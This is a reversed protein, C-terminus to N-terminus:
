LTLAICTYGSTYYFYNRKFRLATYKLTPLARTDHMKFGVQLQDLATQNSMLGVCSAKMLGYLGGWLQHWPTSAFIRWEPISTDYPIGDMAYSVVTNNTPQLFDVDAAM